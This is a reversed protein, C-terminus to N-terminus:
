ASAAEAPPTVPELRTIHLLSISVFREFVAHPEDVTPFFIMAKSRGVKVLEAHRIEYVTGDSLDIRFPRFPREQLMEVIDDPRM